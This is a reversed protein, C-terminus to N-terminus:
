CAHINYILFCEHFSCTRGLCIAKTSYGDIGTIILWLITRLNECPDDPNWVSVTVFSRQEYCGDRGLATGRTALNWVAPPLHRLLRLVRTSGSGRRSVFAQRSSFRQMILHFFMLHRNLLLKVLSRSMIMHIFYHRCDSHLGSQASSSYTYHLNCTRIM